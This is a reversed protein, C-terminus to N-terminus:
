RFVNALKPLAQSRLKRGKKLYYETDINGSVTKKIHRDHQTRGGYGWDTMPIETIIVYSVECITGLVDELLTYFAAIATKKEDDSNSMGSIRADIFATTTETENVEVSYKHELIKKPM